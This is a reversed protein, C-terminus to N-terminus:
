MAIEGHKVKKVYDRCREKFISVGRCVRKENNENNTVDTQYAVLVSARLITPEQHILKRAILPSLQGRQM